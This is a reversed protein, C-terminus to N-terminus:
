TKLKAFFSTGSKVSWGTGSCASSSLKAHLRSRGDQKKGKKLIKIHANVPFRIQSPLQPLTTWAHPFHAVAPQNRSHSSATPLTPLDKSSTTWLALCNETSKIQEFTTSTTTTKPSHSPKVEQISDHPPFFILLVLRSTVSVFSFYIKHKRQRFCSDRHLKRYSV